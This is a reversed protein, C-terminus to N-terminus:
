DATKWGKGQAIQAIMGDTLQAAVGPFATRIQAATVSAVGPNTAFWTEIQATLAAAQTMIPDVFNPNYVKM